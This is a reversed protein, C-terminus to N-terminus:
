KSLKVIKINTSNLYDVSVMNPEWKGKSKNYKHIARLEGTNSDKDAWLVDINEPPYRSEYLNNLNVKKM